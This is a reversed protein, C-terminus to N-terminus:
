KVYVDKKIQSNFFAAKLDMHLIEWGHQIALSVLCCITSWKAVFVFTEQFDL